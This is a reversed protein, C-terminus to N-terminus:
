ISECPPIGGHVLPLSVHRFNCGSKLRWIGGGFRNRNLVRM